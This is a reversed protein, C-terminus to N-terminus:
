GRGQDTPRDTRHPSRGQNDPALADLAVGLADAVATAESFLLSCRGSEIKGLWSQPRGLTTALAAQTLATTPRLPVNM